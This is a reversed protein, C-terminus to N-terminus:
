KRYTKVLVNALHCVYINLKEVIKKKNLQKAREKENGRLTSNSLIFRNKKTGERKTAKSNM